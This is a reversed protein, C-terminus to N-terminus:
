KACTITLQMTNSRRQKGVETLEQDPPLLEAQYLLMAPVRCGHVGECIGALGAFRFSVVEFARSRVEDLEQDPPLLEAQYLLM